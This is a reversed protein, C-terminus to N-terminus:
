EHGRGPLAASREGHRECDHRRHTCECNLVGSRPNRIHRTAEIGDMVPMRMDMLVLDYAVFELSNIAEAGTSVADARLGLKKLVGLAVERNVPDDEAILIRSNSFAHIPSEPQVKEGQNGTGVRRGLRVTFWFESGKGEESTSASEM